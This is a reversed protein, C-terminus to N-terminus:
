QEVAPLDDWRSLDLAVRGPAVTWAPSPLPGTELRQDEGHSRVFGIFAPNTEAASFWQEPLVIRCHWRDGFSRKHVQLDPHNDGRIVAPWDHEPVTLWIIPESNGDDRGLLLTVAEIGQLDALMRLSTRDLAQQPQEQSRRCEIFVEWRGGLRRIQVMTARGLSVAMSRNAQVEALTPPAALPLFTVGPPRAEVIRSGCAIDVRTDGSEVRLVQLPPEVQRTMGLVPSSQMPLRDISLHAIIGPELQVASPPQLADVWSLGLPVADDRLSTVAIRVTEGSLDEPWAMISPQQSEWSVAATLAQQDTRSFDLLAALLSAVQQPDAIWTAVIRSRDVATRTLMHRCEHAIRPSLMALRQMAMRWLVAYHEAALRELDSGTPAPPRLGLRDALLVWRWYEFPSQADPRDPADELEIAGEPVPDDPARLPDNWPVDRWSANVSQGEVRIAGGGDEPLRLLLYPGEGAATDLRGSTDDARDIARLALRRPDLTWAPAQADSRLHLWVVDATFTRGDALKVELTRPWGNGAKQATLPLMLVGGRPAITSTVAPRVGNVSAAICPHALATILLLVLIKSKPNQIKPKRSARKVPARFTTLGSDLIWFGFDMLGMM